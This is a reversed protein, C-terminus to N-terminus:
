ETVLSLEDILYSAGGLKDIIFLTYRIDLMINRCQSPDFMIDSMTGEWCRDFNIGILNGEADLVPSGSNGGTTHNTAIFAVNVTGNEAYQGYDKKAYLDRLKQPIDYDYIEPNDKEMIGDLTTYFDYNVGDRPKYGKVKGYAVRLTFNADPYFLKDAQMKMLGDMYYRYLKTIEGNAKNYAPIVVGRYILQVSEYLKFAPDQELAAIAKADKSDLLEKLKEGNVFVSNEYIYAAYKAMDGGFDTEVKQLADFHYETEVNEKYAELMKVFIEQDIPAYYNKYFSTIRNNLKEIQKVLEAEKKGEAAAKILKKFRGAFSVLEISMAAERGYDKALTYKDLEAYYKDFETFLHGYKAKREADAAVWAKFDAEVSEKKNIADLRKLGRSEGQWKKWANSVRANKSAYKIRVDTSQSQYKNMVDLRKTRLDIKHPNSKNLLTKVAHSTLYEKTTGPYGFILTFDNEKIGKTSIKLHRKPKYPVNDKSYAAPKNDKDAYIRFVSFDGTHRPWMWNDTDGGFKGISSPPAGVLRVDTFVENVFLYYQNGYYFPKVVAKYHTGKTAKKKIKAINKKVIADRKELPTDEKVGKLVKSTVDEMRVMFTVTLGPNSLEEEKSMAWFGDTLYDHEVSSHSQIAGYGCHHNTFVLGQDSVVEGTCGRGFIVIADKLSSQNVSYIDEATLKWGKKKMDAINYDKLLMPIWMGEDARLSAGILLFFVSVLLTIRKM